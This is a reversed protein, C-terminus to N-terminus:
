GAGGRLVVKRIGKWKEQYPLNLIARNREGKRLNMLFPECQIEVAGLKVGDADCFEAVYGFVIDLGLDQKNELIWIVQNSKVQRKVLEFTTSEEFLRVDWEVKDQHPLPDRPPEKEEARGYAALALSLSMAMPLARKM